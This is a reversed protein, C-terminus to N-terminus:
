EAKAEEGSTQSQIFCQAVEHMSPAFFEGNKYFACINMSPVVVAPGTDRHKVGNKYWFGMGSVTEFAPGDLRHMKGEVMYMKMIGVHEVAPGDTCHLVAKSDDFKEIPPPAKSEKVSLFLSSFSSKENELEFIVADEIEQVNAAITMQGLM